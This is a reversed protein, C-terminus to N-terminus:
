FQFYIFQTKEFVGFFYIIFLFSYYCLWRQWTPRSNFLSVLKDKEHLIEISTMFAILILATLLENFGTLATKEISFQLSNQILTMAESMDKARFFIWAFCVLTFTLAWQFISFLKTKPFTWRNNIMVLAVLYIGHLAGWIIFTWNAGHWFGSVMFTIMLNYYGRWKVVRNGGLPIYVYDRFWSSLSIHWRKWFERVNLSFYPRKFNKMLKIGLVRSAGIAIDSYGSFDCYIQIAFFITGLILPLGALDASRDFAIEVFSSLRDAIVVKKFLGWAMLKLGSTIQEYNFEVKKRLQPLLRNSREIPGAVLQPFYTVFLAFRGFHNEVLTEGKYVDISYSMTQFTYFSIGVPLVLEALPIEYSLGIFQLSYNINETFFNFYKFIFLISLNSFLSLYLFRKKKKQGTAQYISRACFYDIITSVIILIIYEYKWSMYFYYSGALLLMWRHKHQMRYYLFCIAIFFIFFDISNFLM